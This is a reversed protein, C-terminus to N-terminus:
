RELLTPYEDPTMIGRQEPECWRLRLLEFLSAETPTELLTEGEYIGGDRATLHSPLAGGRNRPTVLWHGFESPGTRLTFIYGWQAPPLVLYLELHLGGTLKIQKYRPGNKSRQGFTPVIEDLPLQFGITEGFMDVRLTRHPEAVLDIDKISPKRRRLSGAIEIQKCYPALAERYRLALQWGSPWPLRGDTATTTVATDAWQETEM